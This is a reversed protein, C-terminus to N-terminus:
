LSLAMWDEAITPLTQLCDWRNLAGVYEEELGQKFRDHSIIKFRDYSIFSGTMKGEGVGLVEYEFLEYLM